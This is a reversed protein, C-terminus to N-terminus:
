ARSIVPKRRSSPTFATTTAQLVAVAWASSASRESCGSGTMPTTSGPAVAATAAVRPPRMPTM